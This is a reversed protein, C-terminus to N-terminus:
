AGEVKIVQVIKVYFKRARAMTMAVNKAEKVSSAKVALQLGLIAADWGDVFEPGFPDNEPIMFVLYM